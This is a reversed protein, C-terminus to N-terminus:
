ARRKNCTYTRLEEGEEREGLCEKEWERRRDGGSGENAIKRGERVGRNTVCAPCSPLQVFLHFSLYELIKKGASTLLLPFLLYCYSFSLFNYSQVHPLFNAQSFLHFKLINRLPQDNMIKFKENTQRNMDQRQKNIQRKM